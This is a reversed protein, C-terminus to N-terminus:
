RQVSESELKRVAEIATPMDPRISLAKKYAKLAGARDGKKLLAEGLSDWCNAVEPFLETNLRFIRIAEDVKGAFLLNYGVNNLLMDKPRQPSFNSTLEDFNKKVYEIGKEIFATYVRQMPPLAPKAPEKGSIIRFIGAALHEAVPEDMNALVIISQQDRLINYVVANAGEFGGAVPIANGNKRAKELFAHAEELKKTEDGVLKETYFYAEVFKLLDAATTIFGGAPTPVMLIGENDELRGTMTKLYGVARQPAAEKTEDVITDKMGLPETIREKMNQYFSKGTVSEIIGGLLVYGANSYEREEGPEFMLPMERIMEIIAGITQENKPREFFGPQQMYDGYGSSHELLHRVTVKESANPPFGELHKGMPDDLKLKGEQVLQLIVVKTMLKNISGIDFRTRLTNSVNKRRDAKGFAKHYVPRGNEAILVVGSFIDLDTYQKVLADVKPELRSIDSLSTKDAKQGYCAVGLVLCFLCTLVRKLDNKM